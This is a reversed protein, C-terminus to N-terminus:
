GGDRRSFLAHVITLYPSRRVPWGRSQWNRDGIVIWTGAVLIGKLLFALPERAAIAIQTKPLLAFSYARCFIRLFSNPFFARGM